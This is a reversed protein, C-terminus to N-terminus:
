RGERWPGLPTSWLTMAGVQMEGRGRFHFEFTVYRSPIPPIRVRGHVYAPGGLKGTGLVLPLVDSRGQLSVSPTADAVRATGLLCRVELDFDGTAAAEV